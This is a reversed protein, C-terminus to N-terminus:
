SPEDLCSQSFDKQGPNFPSRSGVKHVGRWGTFDGPLGEM